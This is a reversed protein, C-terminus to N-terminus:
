IVKRIHQYKLSKSGKSTKNILLTHAQGIDTNDTNLSFFYIVIIIIIMIM